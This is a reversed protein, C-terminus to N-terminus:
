GSTSALFNGGNEDIDARLRVSFIAFNCQNIFIIITCNSNTDKEMFCRILGDNGGVHKEDWVFWFGGSRSPSKKWVQKFGTLISKVLFYIKVEM